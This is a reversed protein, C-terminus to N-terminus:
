VYPTTPLTLHTYSVPVQSMFNEDTKTAAVFGFRDANSLAKVAKSINEYNTPPQLNFEKFLDKRYVVM